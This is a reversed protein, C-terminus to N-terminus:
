TMPQLNGAQQLTTTPQITLLPTTSRTTSQTGHLTLIPYCPPLSLSHPVAAHFILQFSKGGERALKAELEQGIIVTASLGELWPAEDALIPGDPRGDDSDSDLFVDEAWEDEFSHSGEDGSDKDADCHQM